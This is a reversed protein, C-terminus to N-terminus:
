GAAGTGRGTHFSVSVERQGFGVAFRLPDALHGAIEPDDQYTGDAIIGRAARPWFRVALDNNAEFERVRIFGLEFGFRERLRDLTWPPDTTDEWLAKDVRGEDTFTCFAVRRGGPVIGFLTAAGSKLHGAFFGGGLNGLLPYLREYPRILTAFHRDASRNVSRVFDDIVEDVLRGRRGLVHGPFPQVLELRHVIQEFERISAAGVSAGDLQLNLRLTAVPNWNPSQVLREVWDPWGEIHIASLRDLPAENFPQRDLNAPRLSATRITPWRTLLPEGFDAFDRWDMRVKTPLGREYKLDWGVTVDKGSQIEALLEDERALLAQTDEDGFQDQRHSLEIQVRIFEGLPDGQEDLYDAFVLRPLDADPHDAIHNLFAIRDSM